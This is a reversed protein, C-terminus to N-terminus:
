VQGMARLGGVGIRGTTKSSLCPMRNVTSLRAVIGPMASIMDEIGKDPAILGFTLILRRGELGLKALYPAADVKEVTPIGHHIIRIKAPDIDFVQELM